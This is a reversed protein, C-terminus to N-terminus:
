RVICVAFHVVTRANFKAPRNAFGQTSNAAPGILDGPKTWTGQECRGMVLVVKVWGRRLERNQNESEGSFYPM